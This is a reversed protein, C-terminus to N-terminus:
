QLNEIATAANASAVKGANAALAVSSAGGGSGSTCDTVGSPVTVCFGTILARSLASLANNLPLDIQLKPSVAIDTGPTRPLCQSSLEREQVVLRSAEPPM